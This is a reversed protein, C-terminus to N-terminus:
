TKLSSRLAEETVPGIALLKKGLPIKGFVELFAKVTSPSTFVIEDIHELEPKPELCQTITDYLDCAQYRIEREKFYNALVPRSLASRPMFLYADDLDILSLLKVLGEQTEEEATWQPNLGNVSLHAATVHGIAVVKKQTFDSPTKKLEDLHECFVNVANKSTFIFHTYESLDDYAQRIEPNDLARPVIKIIPYHILHGKARGQAEFHTPDTGLYLITKM